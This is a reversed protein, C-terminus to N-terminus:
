VKCTLQDNVNLLLDLAVGLLNLRSIGISVIKLFKSEIWALWTIKVERYRTSQLLFCVYDSGHITIQCRREADDQKSNLANLTILGLHVSKPAQNGMYLDFIADKSVFDPGKHLWSRDFTYLTIWGLSVVFLSVWDPCENLPKDFANM